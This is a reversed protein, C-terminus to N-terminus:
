INKNEVWSKLIILDPDNVSQYFWKGEAFENWKFSNNLIMCFMFGELRAQALERRETDFLKEDPIEAMSYAKFYGKRKSESRESPLSYKYSHYLMEITDLIYDVSNLPSDILTRTADYEGNDIIKQKGIKMTRKEFDISFKEGCEVRQLLEDYITM